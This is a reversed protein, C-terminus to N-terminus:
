EDIKKQKAEMELIIEEPSKGLSAKYAKVNEIIECDPYENIIIDLTQSAKTVRDLRDDYIYAKFQLVNPILKNKPFLIMLSDLTRIAVLPTGLGLDVQAAKFMYSFSISDNPYLSAYKKYLVSIETPKKDDLLQEGSEYIQYELTDIRNVLTEKENVKPQQQCSFVTSILVAIIVFVLKNM